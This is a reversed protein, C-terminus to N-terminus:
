KTEATTTFIVSSVDFGFEKDAMRLISCNAKTHRTQATSASSYRVNLSPNSVELMMRRSSSPVIKAIAATRTRFFAEIALDIADCDSCYFERHTAYPTKTM